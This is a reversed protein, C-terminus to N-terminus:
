ATVSGHVGAARIVARRRVETVDAGSRPAEEELALAGLAVPVGYPRERELKEVGEPLAYLVGAPSFLAPVAVPEGAEEILPARRAL